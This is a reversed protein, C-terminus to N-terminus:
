RWRQGFDLREIPRDAIWKVSDEGHCVTALIGGPNNLSQMFTFYLSTPSHFGDGLISFLYDSWQPRAGGTSELKRQPITLLSTPAVM